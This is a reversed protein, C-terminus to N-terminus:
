NNNRIFVCSWLIDAPGGTTQQVNVTATVGLSINGANLTTLLFPGGNTVMVVGWVVANAAAIRAQVLYLGNAVPTFMPVLAASAVAVNKGESLTGPLEGFRALDLPGREVAM